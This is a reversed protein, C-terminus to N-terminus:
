FNVFQNANNQIKSLKNSPVVSVLAEEGTFAADFNSVDLIDKSLQPKVPPELSREMIKDIDLDALWPHQLVEDIGGRTGLRNQANKELLKVCLISAM